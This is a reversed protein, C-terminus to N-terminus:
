KRVEAPAPLLAKFGREKAVQYVTRGDPAVLYPFFVEVTEAAATEVRVLQARIWELTNRWAVRGAHHITLQVKGGHERKYTKLAELTGEVNATVLFPLMRGESEIVFKLGLVEGSEDYAKSIERARARVLLQEIMDVSTRQAQETYAFPFSKSINIRKAM